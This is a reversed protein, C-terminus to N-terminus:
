KKKKNDLRWIWILAVIILVIILPTPIDLAGIKVSGGLAVSAVAAGSSALSEKEGTIKFTDTYDGIKLQLETELTEFGEPVNVTIKFNKLEGQDINISSPTVSIINAYEKPVTITVPVEISGTNIINFAATETGGETGIFNFEKAPQIQYSQGEGAIKVILNYEPQSGATIIDLSSVFKGEHIRDCSIQFKDSYYGVPPHDFQITIIEFQGAPLDFTNPSVKVWTQGQMDSSFYPVCNILNDTNSNLAKFEATYVENTKMVLDTQAYAIPLIMLIMMILILKQKM